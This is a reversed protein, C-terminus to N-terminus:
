VVIAERKGVVGRRWEGGGRERREPLAYPGEQM